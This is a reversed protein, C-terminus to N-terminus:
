VLFDFSAKTMGQLVISTDFVDLELYNKGTHVSFNDLTDGAIVDKAGLWGDDNVDLQNLISSTNGLTQDQRYAVLSLNDEAKFDHVVVRSKSDYYNDVMSVALTDRGTGLTIDSFNRDYAYAGVWDDNEGANVKDTDAVITDNGLGGFLNDRTGDSLGDITDNGKGGYITDFGDDGYLHDYGNEGYLTDNGSRGYIIDAGDSGYVTDQGDGGYFQDEGNLLYFTNDGRLSSYFTDSFNTLRITAM